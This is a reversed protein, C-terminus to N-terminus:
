IRRRLRHTIAEHILSVILAELSQGDKEALEELASLLDPELRLWQKRHDQKTVIEIM